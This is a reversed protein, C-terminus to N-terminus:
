GIWLAGVSCVKEAEIRSHHEAVTARAKAAAVEKISRKLQGMSPEAAVAKPPSPVVVKSALRPRPGAVVVAAAAPPTAPGPPPGWVLPDAEPAAGGRAKAKFSATPQLLRSALGPSATNMASGPASIADVDGAQQEATASKSAYQKLASHARAYGIEKKHSVGAAAATSNRDAAATAAKVKAKSPYPTHGPSSGDEAGGMSYRSSSGATTKGTGKPSPGPVVVHASKRATSATKPGASETAKPKALASKPPATTTTRSGAQRNPSTVVPLAALEPSVVALDTAPTVAAAPTPFATAVREVAASPSDCGQMATDDDAAAAAEQVESEAAAQTQEAEPAATDEMAEEEAAEELQQVAEAECHEEAEQEYEAAVADVDAEIEAPDSLLQEDESGCLMHEESYEEAAMDAACEATAHCEKAVAAAAPGGAVAPAAHEQLESDAATSDDAAATPAAAADAIPSLMGAAVAEERLAEEDSYCDEPPPLSDDDDDLCTSMPSAVAAAAAPSPAPSRTSRRPTTRRGPTSVNSAAAAAAAPAPSSVPKPSVPLLPASPAVDDELEAVAADEVAAVAPSGFGIPDAEEMQVSDQLEAPEEQEDEAAPEAAAAAEAFGSFPQEAFHQGPSAAAPQTSAVAAGSVLGEVPSTSNGAATAPAPTSIFMAALDLDGDSPSPGAAVGAASALGAASSPRSEEKTPPLGPTWLSELNIPMVPSPGVTAPTATCGSTVAATVPTLGAITATNSASPDIHRPHGHSVAPEAVVTAPVETEENDAPDPRSGISSTQMEPQTDEAVDGFTVTDDSEQVCVHLSFSISAAACVSSHSCIM